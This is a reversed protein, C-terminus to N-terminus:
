RCWVAWQGVVLWCWMRGVPADNDEWIAGLDVNVRGSVRRLGGLDRDVAHDYGCVTGKRAREGEHNGGDVGWVLVRSGMDWLEGEDLDQRGRLDLIDGAGGDRGCIEPADQVDEVGEVVDLFGDGDDETGGKLVGGIEGVVEEEGAESTPRMGGGAVGGRECLGMGRRLEEEEALGEPLARAGSGVKVRAATPEAPVGREEGSCGERVDLREGACVEDDGRVRQAWGFGARTLDDVALVERRDALAKLERKKVRCPLRYARLGHRVRAPCLHRAVERGEMAPMIAVMDIAPPAFTPRELLMALIHLPEQRVRAHKRHHHAPILLKHAIRLEHVQLHTGENRKRAIKQGVTDETSVHMRTWSGRHPELPSPQRKQHERRLFIVCPSVNWATDPVVVTTQVDEYSLLLETAKM